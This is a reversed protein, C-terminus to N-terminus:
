RVLEGIAKELQLDHTPEDKNLSVDIDPTLGQENVWTGLPTLWKATTLHLGANGPLDQAEQVTGKGFSKEGILKVKKRDRLAGAVIESASASGKNILIVLPVKTLSGSRDVVFEQRQGTGREQVVVVGEDIFESAIFVAGNLYGGPNNRVDLVLGQFGAIKSEAVIKSVAEQWESSTKDGFQSLRIYAISDDEHGKLVTETKIGEVDRAKKVWSDVSKVTITARVISVELPESEEEHLITLVVSTGKKGRIKQVADPLSMGATDKGDIKLIADGARIGSSEAPTDKLPAIVVIRKEKLGLQAGIGEFEGALEQKSETNQTPSLFVTYPDGLSQLAGNIAGYVMREPDIVKKDYYSQTVREWVTWFLTFDATTLGKPPEKSTVVIEPKYQKWDLSIEAKGLLYGFASSLFVSLVVILITKNLFFKM